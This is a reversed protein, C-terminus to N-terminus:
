LPRRVRQARGRWKRRSQAAMPLFQTGRSFLSSRNAVDPVGTVSVEAARDKEFTFAIVFLKYM